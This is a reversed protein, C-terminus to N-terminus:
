RGMSRHHKAADFLDQLPKSFKLFLNSDFRSKKKPRFFKLKPNNEPTPLTRKSADAGDKGDEGLRLRGKALEVERLLAAQEEQKLRAQRAKEESELFSSIQIM